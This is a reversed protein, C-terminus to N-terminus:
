KLFDMLKKDGGTAIYAYYALINSADSADVTGDGNTDGALRQEATLSSSGGTALIAYEKLVDSADSADIAGDDNVDGYTVKIPIDTTTTATTSTTTTTTSTATTTTTTTSTEPATAITFTVFQIKYSIGGDDIAYILANGESLVTVEGKANISVVDPTGSAWIVNGSYNNTVYTLNFTNGVYLNGIYPQQIQIKDSM